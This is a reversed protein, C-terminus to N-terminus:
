RQEDQANTEGGRSNSQGMLGSSIISIKKEAETLDDPTLIGKDVLAQRLVPDFPTQPASVHQPQQEEEKPNNLFSTDVGVGGIPTFPHRFPHNNQPHNCMQCLSSDVPQSDSSM